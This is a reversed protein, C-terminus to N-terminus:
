SCRIKQLLQMRNSVDAKQYINHTHSKVTGASIFLLESIEQTSKEKLLFGLIERERLSLGISTAYADIIEESLEGTLAEYSIPKVTIKDVFFRAAVVILYAAVVIQSVSEGFNRSRIAGSTVLSAVDNNLGYHLGTLIDEFVTMLGLIGVLRLFMDLRLFMSKHVTKGFSRSGIFALVIVLLQFPLLYCIYLFGTRVKLLPFMILWIFLPAEVLTLIWTKSGGVAGKFLHCILFACAFYLLSKIVVPVSFFNHFYYYLPSSIEYGRVILEILYQSLMFLAIYLYEKKQGGIYLILYLAACIVCGSKILLSLVASLVLM